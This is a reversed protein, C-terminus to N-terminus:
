KESDVQHYLKVMLRSEVGSVAPCVDFDAACLIRFLLSRIML